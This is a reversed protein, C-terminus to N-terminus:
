KVEVVLQHPLCIITEGVDSISNHSVCIKDPCDAESVYAKGDRIVVLNYGRETRVPYDADEDLSLTTQVEGGVSIQLHFGTKRQLNYYIICGFGVFLLTSILIIDAVIQKKKHTQRM